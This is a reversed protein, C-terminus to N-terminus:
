KKGALRKSEDILERLHALAKGSAVCKEAVSVGGASSEAKEGLYIAAGSNLLVMDRKAGEDEGALVATLIGANHAADGGKLEDASATAFGFEEPCLYYNGTKGNGLECVFTDGTVTIEDLGAGHVVLARKTGLESLAQAMPACLKEDYVGVLQHTAGAPNSLPGLLNFVTKIGLEKRIGAANKMSPHYLKAFLFGFNKEGIMKETAEPALEIQFGLAELVDASGCKSTASRNGHKAIAVGCASAVIASATSVNFSHSFDGGTGCTDVLPKAKPHIKVCHGRMVKALAAIEGATEGKTKLAALFAGAQSPALSGQMLANMAFEAEAAQLDRKECLNGLIGSFEM